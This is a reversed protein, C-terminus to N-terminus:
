IIGYLKHDYEQYERKIIRENNSEAIIEGYGHQNESYKVIATISPHKEKWEKLNISSM